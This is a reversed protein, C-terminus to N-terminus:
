LAHRIIVVYYGVKLDIRFLTFNRDLSVKTLNAFAKTKCSRLGDPSSTDSNLTPVLCEQDLNQRLMWYVKSQSPAKMECTLLVPTGKRFVTEQLPLM